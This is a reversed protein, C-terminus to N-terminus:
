PGLTEEHLCCLTQDSQASAWASRLKRQAYLDNQQNQRATAWIDFALIDFIEFYTWWLLASMVNFFHDKAFKSYYIYRLNWFVRLKCDGLYRNEVYWRFLDKMNFVMEKQQWWDELLVYFQTFTVKTFSKGVWEGTKEQKQIVQFFSRVYQNGERQFFLRRKEVEKQNFLITNRFDMNTRNGENTISLEGCDCNKCDEGSSDGGCNTKNEAVSPADEPSKSNELAICNQCEDSTKNDDSNIILAEPGAIVLDGFILGSIYWFPKYYSCLYLSILM